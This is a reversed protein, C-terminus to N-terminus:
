HYGNTDSEAMIRVGHGVGAMVGLGPCSYLKSNRSWSFAVVLLEQVKQHRSSNVLCAARMKATRPLKYPKEKGRRSLYLREYIM